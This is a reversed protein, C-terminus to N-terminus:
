ETHFKVYVTKTRPISANTVATVQITYTTGSQQGSVKFQVAKGIAVSRGDITVAATNGVKNALTLHATTIEVVTPTGTLVESGDLWDQFDVAGMDIDGVSLVPRQQLTIPM